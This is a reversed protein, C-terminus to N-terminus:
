GSVRREGQDLTVVLIDDDTRSGSNPHRTAEREVPMARGSYMAQQRERKKQEEIFAHQLKRHLHERDRQYM